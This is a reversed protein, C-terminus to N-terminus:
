VFKSSSGIRLLDRELIGRDINDIAGILKELEKKTKIGGSLKIGKYEGSIVKHRYIEEALIVM